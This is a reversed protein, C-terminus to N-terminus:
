VVWVDNAVGSAPTSAEDGQVRMSEVLVSLEKM